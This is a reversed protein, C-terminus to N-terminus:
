GVAPADSRLMVAIDTDYRAVYAVGDATITELGNPSNRRRYLRAALMAAGLQVTEPWESAPDVRNAIVPLEQVHAVVAACTSFLVEDTPTLNLKGWAIVREALESPIM